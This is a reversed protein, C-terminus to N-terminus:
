GTPVGGGAAKLKDAKASQTKVQRSGDRIAEPLDAFEQSRAERIDQTALGLFLEELGTEEDLRKSQDPGAATKQSTAPDSTIVAAGSGVTEGPEGIKMFDRSLYDIWVSQGTGSLRQLRENM